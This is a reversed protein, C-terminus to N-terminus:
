ENLYFLLDKSNLKSKIFIYLAQLQGIGIKIRKFSILNIIMKILLYSFARITSLEPHLTTFYIKSLATTKSKYIVNKINENDYEMVYAHANACVHLEYKKSIPYSFRIDEGQAWKTNIPVQEFENIVNFRWTSYGGGLWQTQKNNTLNNIPVGFGSSTVMGRKAKYFNNVYSSEFDPHDNSSILNFGIGATNNDKTEWYDMIKEMANPALLVDDDLIVVFDTNNNLKSKGINRQHIQGAEESYIYKINLKSRYQQIVNEINDGSAVIIVEDPLLTQNSL